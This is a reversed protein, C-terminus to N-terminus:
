SELDLTGRNAKRCAHNLQQPVLLVLCSAWGLCLKLLLWHAASANCEDAVVAALRTVNRLVTVLVGLADVVLTSFSSAFSHEQQHAQAGGAVMPGTTILATATHGMLTLGAVQGM